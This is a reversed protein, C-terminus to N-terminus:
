KKCRKKKTDLILLDGLKKDWMGEHSFPRFGAWDYFTMEGFLIKGNTYHLDVRLFSTDKSLKKAIEKMEAFLEPKKFKMESRPFGHNIDIPRFNIDYYNEFINDNKVTIYVYKPKGNFCMFKYDMLDDSMEDKIYKEVIIRPKINKYPWERARYYYNRRLAKNIRKKASKKDFNTKDRCIVLGGSNHTCKIVFSDPLEDFNIDDFRDYIGFTPIIYKKGIIDAVYRKAEYKDAMITYIDKRDNLKLWQLKENFTKPNELNLNKGMSLYYKKKLYKEDEMWKYFGYRSLYEFRKRSDFLVNIIKNMTVM